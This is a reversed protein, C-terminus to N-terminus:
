KLAVISGLSGGVKDVQGWFIVVVAFHACQEQPVHVTNPSGRTPPAALIRVGEGLVQSATDTVGTRADEVMFFPLDPAANM